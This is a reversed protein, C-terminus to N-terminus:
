DISERTRNWTNSYGPLHSVVLPSTVYVRKHTRSALAYLSVDPSLPESSDDGGEALSLILHARLLELSDRPVFFGYSGLSYRSQELAAASSNALRPPVGGLAVLLLDRLSRAERFRHLRLNYYIQHGGLLVLLADREVKAWLSARYSAQCFNHSRLRADDELFTSFEDGDAIAQGVCRVLARAVGRGRREDLEGPCVRVQISSGCAERWAEVFRDLRHQNSIHSGAVGQLSVVYVVLPPVGEESERPASPQMSAPAVPVPSPPLLRPTDVHVAAHSLRGLVRRGLSIQASFNVVAVLLFSVSAPWMLYRLRASRPM